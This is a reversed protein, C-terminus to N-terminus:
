LMDEIERRLRVGKRDGGREAGNSLANGNRKRNANFFDLFVPRRKKRMVSWRSACSYATLGDVVVSVVDQGVVAFPLM